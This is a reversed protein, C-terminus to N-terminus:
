DAQNVLVRLNPLRVRESYISNLRLLGEILAILSTDAFESNRMLAALRGTDLTSFYPTESDDFEKLTPRMDAQFLRWYEEDNIVFLVGFEYTGDVLNLGFSVIETKVRDRHETIWKLPPRSMFWLPAIHPDEAEVDEGGLLEEYTERYVSAAISTEFPANAANTPQHMGSPLLSLLHAGTSVRGSRRKVFCVFGDEGPRRLALLVNTGGACLRRFGAVAGSDPLLENRLTMRRRRMRFADSPKNESDQLAQTLEAELFGIKIKYDLYKHLSFEAIQKRTPTFSQLCYIPKNHFTIERTTLYHRLANEESPSVTPGKFIPSQLSFRNEDREDIPIGLNLWDAKTAINTSVTRGNVVFSFRCLGQERLTKDPYYLKLLEYKLRPDLHAIDYATNPASAGEELFFGRHNHFWDRIEKKCASVPSRPGGHVSRVPLGRQKRWRELTRKPRGTFQVIAKWGKLEDM